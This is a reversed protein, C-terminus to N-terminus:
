KKRMKLKKELKAIAVTTKVVTDPNLSLSDIGEKVLFEAFDPFDSPGQGCIGIKRKNKKARKIVQSILSKVAENKENGIFSLNGADRDLGLTLQTLDNSGISFGDFYKAFEDALIVNAPIEAMVYVQLPKLTYSVNKKNRWNTVKVKVKEGRVLKNKKMVALVKQAEEITRCFPIMVIVNDLGLTERVKKIAQCELSFAEIFKPDYYRSAGRWGLMPNSEVPEFERGGILEAYENTKFDSLRVIVDKPYFAAAIQSVGEALKDVFFEKKNQYSATMKEIQQKAKKNKLKNFNLLAKPHIKIYSNIIFEERALGVGDNPMLSQAFANDPVGINMMMKTKTKGVNKLNTKNVKFPVLGKYVYGNQGEACSVTVQNGTKLKNSANGSGVICPIGLERSVIAAHCTRGGADTVIASAIKMIPEWDPDTIDTVLVEGPKFTKMDKADMIVRVKGSGIKNGVSMGTVLVNSKKKDSLQYEELVSKDATFHVTEPRAQVIYLEGTIGDKAWEIDMSKKYHKEILVGWQALQLLDKDSICLRQRDKIAVKEEKTPESENNNYVLKVTKAGVKKSIIAPYGKDLTTQFVRFEDPTVVGKVVYEGLGYSANIILLDEFGSETDTTFMVGSVGKDSRVMKQIGVSLAIEFHDFHKDERYSIARDTFLSAICKKVALMLEKEGEINLYTEQQGAFSADPLDEATASSRVAVSINKGKGLKKYASIVEKEIEMPLTAALILQRVKKGRARLNMVNGTNLDSLINKIEKKIGAHELFYRYAYATLAFGDPVRVGAKALNSFMEGLSANKGGAYAVDKNNLENFHLIFKKSKLKSM